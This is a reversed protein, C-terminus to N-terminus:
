HLQPGNLVSIIFPQVFALLQGQQEITLGNFLCYDFFAAAAKKADEPLSEMMALNCVMDPHVFAAVYQVLSECIEGSRSEAILRLTPRLPEPFDSLVSANCDTM